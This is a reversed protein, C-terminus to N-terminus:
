RKRGGRLALFLILGGIGLGGGILVMPNMGLVQSNYENKSQQGLAVLASREEASINGARVNDITQQPTSGKIFNYGMKIHTVPNAYKVVKSTIKIGKSIFKGVSGFIGSMSETNQAADVIQQYTAGPYADAIMKLM